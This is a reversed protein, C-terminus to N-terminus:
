RRGDYLHPLAERRKLARGGTLAVRAVISLLERTTYLSAKRGSSVHAARSLVAFGLGRPKAWAVLKQTLYIEEAAYVDEPFGGVERFADARCFVFSGAALGLRPAAANWLRVVLRVALPARDFRIVCGGAACRGAAVTELLEELTATQLVSDADIFLLWEGGAARAGTNRARSIQNHPEFVVRAGEDHAIMATTDTSNNDCVIVEAEFGPQACRELAARVSRLCPRLLKEENYAPVVISLRM